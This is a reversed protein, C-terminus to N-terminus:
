EFNHQFNLYAAHPRIKGYNQYIMKGKSILNKYKNVNTSENQRRCLSHVFFCAFEPFKFAHFHRVIGLLLNLFEHIIIIFHMELTSCHQSACIYPAELPTLITLHWVASLSYLSDCRSLIM